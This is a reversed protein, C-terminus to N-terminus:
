LLRRGNSETHRPIKGIPPCQMHDSETLDDIIEPTTDLRDIIPIKPRWSSYTEDQLRQFEHQCLWPHQFAQDITLRALPNAALTRSLFERAHESLCSTPIYEFRPAQQVLQLWQSPNSSNLEFPATGLLMDHLMCGLSWVDVELSYGRVKDSYTHLLEPAQYSMTGVCSFMRERSQTRSTGFDTLLIRCYAAPSSVLVNEMKIDRHVLGHSHLYELARLIQYVYWAIQREADPMRQEGYYKMGSLHIRAFLDGGTILETLIYVFHSTVFVEM